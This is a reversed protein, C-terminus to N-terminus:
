SAGREEAIPTVEEAEAETAQLVYTQPTQQRTSPAVRFGTKEADTPAERKSIRYLAFAILAIHAIGSTAFLGRMGLTSMAVGSILPGIISGLGFMLLLGGSVRIYNGDSSDNAHAIIVPYMAFIAAGFMSALVLNALVGTPMFTVFLADALLAVFATGVLVKRRDMRDSLYGVPLQSIAGALIPIANFLAITSVALGVGSAYVAALTGFSSNSVGVMFVGAVAVPSARWLSPIDLKVSVLPKPSASTTMATPILALAYTMAGLVFLAYGRPDGAIITLQGATTAFLNVMTYIGFVTGRNSADTRDGLWSEVIMAAGAFAFGQVGRLPIWAYPTLILLQALIGIGGVACMVSFARIHGVRAVLEASFMCGAVYGIAWGTGLLGLSLSSFGEATGRLPLILSNIGGAFLLCFSGALLASIPLIYRVM